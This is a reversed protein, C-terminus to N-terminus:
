FRRILGLVLAQIRCQTSYIPQFHDNAPMLRVCSKDKYFRKVTATDDELLAIVLQGNQATDSRRCVICDGDQIGAGLMSEGSVKLVFLDGSHGFMDTLTFPTRTEIADIGYGAAVTGVLFLPGATNPVSDATDEPPLARSLLSNAKATLRLSRARAPTHRILGNQRLAVLHEYVTPRSTGLSAALEAITASYCQRDRFEAIAQLVQFQKPTIPPDQKM